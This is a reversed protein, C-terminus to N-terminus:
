SQNRVEQVRKQFTKYLRKSEEIGSGYYQKMNEALFALYEPSKNEIVEFEILERDSFAHDDKLDRIQAADRTTLEGPAAKLHNIKAYANTAKRFNQMFEFWDPYKELIMKEIRFDPTLELPMLRQQVSDDLQKRDLFTIDAGMGATNGAAVIRFNPHRYVIEQNPFAYFSDKKNSTFSNLVITAESNSSDLEDLFAGYGYKYCQYWLPSSYDGNPLISGIVDYDELIKNIPLYHLDLLDFAQHIMHTKGLGSNGWIYPNCDEMIMKILTPFMEHYIEGDEEKQQMKEMLERYRSEFPIRKDFFHNIDKPIEKPQIVHPAVVQISSPTTAVLTQAHQLHEILESIPLYNQLAKELEPHESIAQRLKQETENGVTRIRQLEDRTVTDIQSSIVSIESAKRQVQDNISNLISDTDQRFKAVEEELAEMLQLKFHELLETMKVNMSKEESQSVQKLQEISNKLQKKIQQVSQESLKREDRLQNLIGEADNLLVDFEELRAEDVDYIGVKKRNEELHHDYIEQVDQGSADSYYLDNLVTLLHSSFVEENAFFERSKMAYVVFDDFYRDIDDDQVRKMIQFYNSKDHFLNFFSANFLDDLFISDHDPTHECLIKWVIMQLKETDLSDDQDSINGVIVSRYVDLAERIYDSFYHFQDQQLYYDLVETLLEDTFFPNKGNSLIKDLFPLVDSIKDSDVSSNASKKMMESLNKRYKELYTLETKKFFAM